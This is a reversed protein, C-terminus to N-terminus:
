EEGTAGGSEQWTIRVRGDSFVAQQYHRLRCAYLGSWSTFYVIRNKDKARREQEAPSVVRTNSSM